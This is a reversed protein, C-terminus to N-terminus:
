DVEISEVYFEKGAIVELKGHGCAPCPMGIKGESVTDCLSCKLKVPVKEIELEAGEAITGERLVEFCFKLADPQICTLAGVKVRIKAVKTAGHQAATEQVLEIMSQTISLEHM